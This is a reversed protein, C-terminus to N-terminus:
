NFKGQGALDLLTVPRSAGGMFCSKENSLAATEGTHDFLNFSRNLGSLAVELLEPPVKVMQSEQDVIFGAKILKNLTSSEPVSFGVDHLIEASKERVLDAISDPQQDFSRM